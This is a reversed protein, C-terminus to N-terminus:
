EVDPSGEILTARAAADGDCLEGYAAATSPDRGYRRKVSGISAAACLVWEADELMDDALSAGKEAVGKSFIESCASLILCILVISVTTSLRRFFKFLSM